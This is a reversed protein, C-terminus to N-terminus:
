FDHGFHKLQFVESMIKLVRDEGYTAIMNNFHRSVINTVVKNAPSVDRAKHRLTKGTAEPTLDIIELTDRKEDFDPKLTKVYVLIHERQATSTLQAKGLDKGNVKLQITRDM